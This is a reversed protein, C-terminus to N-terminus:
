PTKGKAISENATTRVTENLDQSLQLLTFMPTNAHQAVQARVEVDPNGAIRALVKAPCSPNEVMVQIIKQDKRGLLRYVKELLEAPMDPDGAVYSMMNYASLREGEDQSRLGEFKKRLFGNPDHDIERMIEILDFM